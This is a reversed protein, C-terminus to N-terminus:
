TKVAFDPLRGSLGSSGIMWHSGKMCSLRYCVGPGENKSGSDDDERDWVPTPSLEELRDSQEREKPNIDVGLCERAELRIREEINNTHFGLGMPCNVENM